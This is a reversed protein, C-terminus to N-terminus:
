AVRIPNGGAKPVRYLVLQQEGDGEVYYITRGDASWSPGLPLGNEKAVLLVTPGPREISVLRLEWGRVGPATYAVVSGDPSLAPRMQALIPGSILVNEKGDALTRVRIQDAGGAKVMYVLRKGDPHPMPALEMGADTTIRTKEGTALDFRWLDLGGGTNSSYFLSRGDRAFAPDMAFGREIVREAGTKMDRTVVALTSGDDRVFALSAGDPSWAPRSDMGGGRTLRRAENTSRDILWIWGRSGVAITKGDPSEAPDSIGANVVPLEYGEVYVHHSSGVLKPYRNRWQAHAPAFALVSLALVLRRRPLM